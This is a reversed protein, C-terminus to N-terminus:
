LINRRKAEARLEDNKQWYGKSNYRGSILAVCGSRIAALLEADSVSDLKNDM